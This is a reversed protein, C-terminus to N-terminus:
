HLARCCVRLPHARGPIIHWRAGHPDHHADHLVAQVSMPNHVVGIRHLLGPASEDASAPPLRHEILRRGRPEAAEPSTHSALTSRRRWHARSSAAASCARRGSAPTTSCAPRGPRRRWARRRGARGRLRRRRPAALGGRPPRTSRVKVFVERGDDALAESSRAARRDLQRRAARIRQTRLAERPGVVVRGREADLRVVYLPAGTAIGLGRRQGVTFHIIGDHAGLVKGDLDVITAPAAAGPKLREIVDAYHGTPVFCIDQSDHKDAVSLGSAPARTRADRGQQPRRASLAAPRAARAHHRVPFLEPRARGRARPLARPRRRRAAALRRLPRDGAGQRWTRARHGLLDHFKIAMNCDVCPVPTEGAVYSEAFRDIM